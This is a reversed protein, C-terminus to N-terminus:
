IQVWSIVPELHRHHMKTFFFDVKFVNYLLLDVFTAISIIHIIIMIIIVM